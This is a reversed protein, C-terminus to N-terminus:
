VPSYFLIRSACGHLLYMVFIVVHENIRILIM